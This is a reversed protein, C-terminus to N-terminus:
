KSISTSSCSGPKEAHMSDITKSSSVEPDPTIEPCEPTEEQSQLAQEVAYGIFEAVEVDELSEEHREAHNDKIYKKKISKHCKNCKIIHNKLRTGNNPLVDSCFICKVKKGKYKASMVDVFLPKM